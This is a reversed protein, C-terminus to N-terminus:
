GAQHKIKKNSIFMLKVFFSEKYKKRLEMVEHLDIENFSTLMAANAQAEVMREAIKARLRTMPVRQDGLEHQEVKEKKTKDIPREIDNTTSNEADKSRLYNM